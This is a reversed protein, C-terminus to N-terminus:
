NLYSVESPSGQHSLHFLIQRYNPLGLNSGWTPLIQLLSHCGAGTNKGATNWPCIIWDMPDCLTLCSQAIYCVCLRLFDRKGQDRHQGCQYSQLCRVSRWQEAWKMTEGEKGVQKKQEFTNFSAEGLLNDQRTEDM